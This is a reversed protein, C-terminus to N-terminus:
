LKLGELCTMLVAMSVTGCGEGVGLAEQVLELKRGKLTLLQRCHYIGDEDVLLEPCPGDRYGHLRSGVGCWFDYCCYGCRRCKNSSGVYKKDPKEAPAPQLKM